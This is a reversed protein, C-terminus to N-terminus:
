FISFTGQPYGKVLSYQRMTVTEDAAWHSEPVDPFPKTALWALHSQTLPIDIGLWRLVTPFEAILRNLIALAKPNRRLKEISARRQRLWQVGLPTQQYPEREVQTAPLDELFSALAGAIQIPTLRDPAPHPSQFLPLGLRSLEAAAGYAWHGAPLPQSEPLGAIRRKQDALYKPIPQALIVKLGPADVALRTLDPRFEEVLSDLAKVAEPGATLRSVLDLALGARQDPVTFTQPSPLQSLLRAIAVAFVYRTMARRGGYTGDPYGIVIGAKQLVDVDHWAPDTLPVVDSPGLGAPATLAALKAKLATVDQGLLTLEPAFQTTLSRLAPADQPSQQFRETTDSPESLQGYLRAVDGSMQLRTEPPCGDWAGDPVAMVVGSKILTDENQRAPDTQSVDAFPSELQVPTLVINGDEIEQRQQQQWAELRATAKPVDQGLRGLEASFEKVLAILAAVAPPSAKLRPTWDTRPSVDAPANALDPTVRLSTLLRITAVAFEYRTLPQRGSFTGDPYGFRVGAKQLTDTASFPWTSLCVDPPSFATQAACPPACILLVTLSLIPLKM